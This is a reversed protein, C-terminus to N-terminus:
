RTTGTQLCAIDHALDPREVFRSLLEAFTAREPASWGDLSDRLCGRRETDAADLLDEARTTLQVVVARRDHLDRERVVLDRAELEDLHRTITTSDLGLEHALESVRLPGLRHLRLLPHVAGRRLGPSLRTAFESLYSEGLATLEVLAEHLADELPRHSM